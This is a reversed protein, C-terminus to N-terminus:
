EYEKTAHKQITETLDEPFQNLENSFFNDLVQEDHVDILKHLSIYGSKPLGEGELTMKKDHDSTEWKEFVIKEPIINKVLDEYEEPYYEWLSQTILSFYEHEETKFLFGPGGCCDCENPDIIEWVEQINNITKIEILQEKLDKEHLAIKKKKQKNLKLKHFLLLLLTLLFIGLIWLYIINEGNPQLKFYDIAMLILKGLPFSLFTALLAYLAIAIIHLSFEDDEHKIYEIFRKKETIDEETAKRETITIM